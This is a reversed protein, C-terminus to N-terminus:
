AWLSAHPEVHLVPLAMWVRPFAEKSHPHCLMSVPQGSLNHLYEFDTQVHDQAGARPSGARDPTSVVHDASTEELKLWEIIWHNQSPDERGEKPGKVTEVHAM